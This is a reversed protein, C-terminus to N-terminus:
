ALYPSATSTGLMVRDNKRGEPNNFKIEKKEAYSKPVKMRMAGFTDVNCKGFQM